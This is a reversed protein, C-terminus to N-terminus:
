EGQLKQSSARVGAQPWCHCREFPLVDVQRILSMRRRRRSRRDVGVSYTASLLERCPSFNFCGLHSKGGNRCLWTQCYVSYLFRLLANDFLPIQHLLCLLSPLDNRRGMLDVVQAHESAYEDSLQWEPLIDVMKTEWDLMERTSLYTQNEILM